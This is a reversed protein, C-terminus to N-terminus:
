MACSFLMPPYKTLSCVNHHVEKRHVWNNDLPCEVRTVVGECLVFPLDLLHRGGHIFSEKNDVHKRNGRSINSYAEAVVQPLIFGCWEIQVFLSM